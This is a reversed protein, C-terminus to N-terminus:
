QYFYIYIGSPVVADVYLIAPSEFAPLGIYMREEYRVIHKQLFIVNDPPVSRINGVSETDMDRGTGTEMNEMPIGNAETFIDNGVLLIDEVLEAKGSLVARNSRQNHMCMCFFQKIVFLDPMYLIINQLISGFPEAFVKLTSIIAMPVTIFEFTRISIDSM